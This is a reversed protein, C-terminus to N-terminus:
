GLPGVLPSRVVTDVRGLSQNLYLGLLMTSGFGLGLCIFTWDVVVHVTAWIKYELIMQIGDVAYRTLWIAM